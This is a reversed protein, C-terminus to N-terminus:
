GTPKDRWGRESMVNGRSPVRPSQVYGTETETIHGAIKM